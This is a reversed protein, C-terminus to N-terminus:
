MIEVQFQYDYIAVSEGTGDEWVIDTVGAIRRLENTQAVLLAKGSEDTGVRITIKDEPRLKAQKRLSQIQRLVERFAGEDKLEPTLQADLVIESGEQLVEKVNVEDAILDLYDQALRSEPITLKALPQRTKMKVQTRAELGKTILERTLQMHELVDGTTAEPPKPWESLHVSLPDESTKVERWIQEALFPVFPATIQALTRLVYRTTALAYARDQVDEGKFRGRSRRIYWQSLDAVFPRIPRCARTTNYADLQTRVELELEGLRAVIWHDLINPSSAHDISPAEDSTFMSYFRLVNGLMGILRNKIEEYGADTFKLDEGQMLVSEMLYFRLADVGYKAFNETPDTYNGKSKSMKAGDVATINGTVIVNKYPVDDFLIVALAHMYYFWTRTQGVYESVFDGPFRSEFLEKNSFPYHYEAFPMAGSEFWGDLVEPVRILEEGSPAILEIEDIYPKHFDLEYWDNHPYQWFALNTLSANGIHDSHTHPHLHEERHQTELAERLLWIPSAHTILLIKKGVYKADLEFMLEMARKQIQQDNEGGPWPKLYRESVDGWLGETEPITKGEYEGFDVESIRADGVVEADAVWACYDKLVAFTEQTRQMPSVVVIDYPTAVIKEAVEQVQSRGTDTLGNEVSQDANFFGGLNSQAEGHRLATFTNGSHQMYKKLDDRGGIVFLEGSTKGKWIPLPSAWYRNRSITWDPASEMINQFRGDQFHEPIWQIDQNLQLMRDKVKQINIFWSSIANYLLATDCRHCHPYSHRNNKKAYMLGRETLDNKIAKEAKKFYEGRILEPVQENFYGGADLMPVMPLDLAQGLVFDDEGYIVATHVVGTGDETTVFDASAIYYAKKSSNKVGEIEYLPKYEKGILTVGTFTDMLEYEGVLVELREKALIYVEEGQSVRVYEIDNGVALAVNGPLTWPTTTWALVYVGPEDVLEFKIFVSEEDIDKYSNDMAVEAKSIPTECRPCYLLVKRGEYLLGKDYITKLAWWVSETYTADMTKYAHDMDVWRGVRDIYWEWDEAYQLVAGRCTENFKKVGIEEIDKKSTLGLRKEIMVEIPLGHCDWGWRRRVQYGQMTKYRPIVDKIISSLLSGYHPLGTAFPPGDYFVFEGEPSDKKLTQEFVNHEKWFDLIQEEAQAIESKVFEEKEISPKKTNM